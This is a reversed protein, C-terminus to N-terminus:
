DNTGFDTNAPADWDVFYGGDKHVLIHVNQDAIGEMHFNEISHDVTVTTL